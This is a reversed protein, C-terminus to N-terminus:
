RNWQVLGKTAQKLRYLTKKLKYVKDAGGPVLFREPQEVYIEEKLVGNLFVFKVDM